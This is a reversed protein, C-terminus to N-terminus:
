LDGLPERKLCSAEHNTGIDVPEPELEFCEETAEPCRPSFHCAYPIDILDPVSGPIPEIRDDPNELRPTSAILAETYPHAPNDFLEETPAREIIEGAYMVNARTTTEAVVALDHTILLISTDFETLLAELEDLIQAQITVDLGTTPEDAILLDPQCSLAMAVM